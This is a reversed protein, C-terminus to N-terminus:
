TEGDRAVALRRWLPRLYEVLPNGQNEVDLEIRGSPYIAACGLPRSARRAFALASRKFLFVGGQDGKDDRVIWFGDRNRGIFFAPISACVDSPDLPQFCNPQPSPSTLREPPALSMAM